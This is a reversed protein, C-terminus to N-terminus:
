LSPNEHSCSPKSDMLSQVRSLIIENSSSCDEPGYPPNVTLVGAVCLKEGEPGEETVPIRNKELWARLSDRRERLEERSYVRSGVPMFVSRLREALEPDGERLVAVAEVTHGMVAAVMAKGDEKFNVLVLNASVPDVTFVWGQYQQKEAATVTVEKNVYEQWELPKRSQWWNM